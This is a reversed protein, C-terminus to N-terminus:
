KDDNQRNRNGHRNNKKNRSVSKKNNTTAQDSGFETDKNKRGIDAVGDKTSQNQTLNVQDFTNEKGFEVSFDQQSNQRNDLKAKAYNFTPKKNDM